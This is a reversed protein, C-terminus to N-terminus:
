HIINDLFKDHELGEIAILLSGDNDAAYHAVAKGDARHYLKIAETSDKGPTWSSDGATATLQLNVDAPTLAGGARTYELLVSCGGHYVVRVILGNRGHLDGDLVTGGELVQHHRVRANHKLVPGYLKVIEQPTAGLPNRGTHTVAPSATAAPSPLPAASEAPATPPATQPDAVLRPAPLVLGMLAALLAPRWSVPVSLPPM